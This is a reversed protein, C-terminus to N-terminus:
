DFLRIMILFWCWFTCCVGGCLLSMRGFGRFRCWILAVRILVM